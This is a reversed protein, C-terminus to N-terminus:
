KHWRDMLKGDATIPVGMFDGSMCDIVTQLAKVGESVPVQFIVEDHLPLLVQIGADIVKLMGDVFIERATSQIAYNLNGYRRTPDAPINRGWKTHVWDTSGLRRGLSRVMPYAKDFASIFEGALEETIGCQKALTASGGGFMRGFGARKAISRQEPTFDKGYLRSATIAHLDDGRIIAEMMTTDQSLGAAVCFEIRDLDVAGLIYGADPVICGRVSPPLQHFPPEGVSQRGTIAGISNIHPHVRDVKMKSIYDRVLKKLERSHYFDRLVPEVETGAVAMFLAEKALSPAGKSTRPVAIMNDTLWEAVAIKDDKTAIDMAPFGSLTASLLSVGAEGILEDELQELYEKDIRMGRWSMLMCEKMLRHERSILSSGGLYWLTELLRVTVVPDLGSYELYVPDGLPITGWDCRPRDSKAGDGKFRQKLRIDADYHPDVLQRVRLKLGHMSTLRSTNDRVSHGMPEILRSLVLTDLAKSALGEPDVQWGRAATICDAPASHMVLVSSADLAARIPRVMSAPLVHAESASGFQALRPHWDDEWISGGSTETDFGIYPERAIFEAFQTLSDGEQYVYIPIEDGALHSTLTRM